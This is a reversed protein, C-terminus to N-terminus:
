ASKRAPPQRLNRRTASQTTDSITDFLVPYEGAGIRIIAGLIEDPAAIDVWPGYNAFDSKQEYNDVSTVAVLGEASGVTGNGAAPYHPLSSNSNGAAAAIVVGNKITDKIVQQLM